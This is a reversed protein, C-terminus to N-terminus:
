IEVGSPFTQNVECSVDNTWSSVENAKFWVENPESTVVNAKFTVM